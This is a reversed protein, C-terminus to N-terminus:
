TLGECCSPASTDHTQAAGQPGDGGPSTGWAGRPQPVSQDSGSRGSNVTVGWPPTWAQSPPLLGVCAARCRFRLWLSAMGLTRLAEVLRQTKVQTTSRERLLAKPIHGTLHVLTPVSPGPGGGHSPSVSGSASASTSTSTSASASASGMLSAGKLLSAGDEWLGFLTSDLARVVLGPGEDLGWGEPDDMGPMGMDQVVRVHALSAALATTAPPGPRLASTLNGSPTSGMPAVVVVAGQGAETVCDNFAQQDWKGRKRITDLSCLLVRRAPATAAVLMVGINMRLPSSMTGTSPDRTVRRDVSAQVDFPPRLAGSPLVHLTHRRHSGPSTTGSRLPPYAVPGALAELCGTGGPWGGGQVGPEANGHHCYLPHQVVLVDLDLYLVDIGLSLVMDVVLFKLSGFSPRKPGPSRDAFLLCHQGGFSATCWAVDSANASVLICAHTVVPGPDVELEGPGPNPAPAGQARASHSWHSPTAGPESDGPAFGQGLGLAACRAMFVEAFPRMVSGQAHSLVVHPRPVPGALHRPRSSGPGTSAQSGTGTGTSIPVGALGMVQAVVDPTLNGMYRAKVTSSQTLAQVSAHIPPLPTVAGPGPMGLPFCTGTASASAHGALAALDRAARKATVRLTALHTRLGHPGFTRAVDCLTTAPSWWPGTSAATVPATSPSGPAKSPTSGLTSGGFEFSGSSEPSSSCNAAGAVDCAAAALLLRPLMCRCVAMLLQEGRDVDDGGGGPPAAWKEPGSGGQVPLSWQALVSWLVAAVALLALCLATRLTSGM